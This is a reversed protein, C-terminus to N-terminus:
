LSCRVPWPIASMCIPWHQLLWKVADQGFLIDEVITWISLASSVVEQDCRNTRAYTYLFICVENRGNIKCLSNRSWRHFGLWSHEYSWWVFWQGFLMGLCPSDFGSWTALSYTSLCISRWRWWFLCFRALRWHRRSQELGCFESRPRYSGQHPKRCITTGAAYGINRRSHSVTGAYAPAMRLHQCFLYFADNAHTWALDKRRDWFGPWYRHDSVSYRASNAMLVVSFYTSMALVIPQASIKQKDSRKGASLVSIVGDSLAALILALSPFVAAMGPYHSLYDVSFAPEVPEPRSKPRDRRRFEGTDAPEEKEAKEKKEKKAPRSRKRKKMPVDKQEDLEESHEEEKKQSNKLIVGDKIYTGPKVGKANSTKGSGKKGGSKGDGKKGMTAIQALAQALIAVSNLAMKPLIGNSKVVKKPSWGAPFTTIFQEFGHDESFRHFKCASHNKSTKPDAQNNCSVEALRKWEHKSSVQELYKLNYTMTVPLNNWSNPGSVRNFFINIFNLYRGGFIMEGLFHHFCFSNSFGCRHCILAMKPPSNTYIIGGMYMLPHEALPKTEIDVDVNVLVM